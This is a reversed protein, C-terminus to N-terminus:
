VYSESCRGWFEILAEKLQEDEISSLAKEQVLSLIVAEAKKIKVVKKFAVARKKEEVLTFRVHTIRPEGLFSNISDILVSSLLYLEQMWHSEYVGIIVTNGYIKELRVKTQLNGMISHWNAFLVNRWDAHQEILQPIIDKVLIAM